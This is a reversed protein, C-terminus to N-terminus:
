PRVRSFPLRRLRAQLSSFAVDFLFVPASVFMRRWLRRPEQLLRPLWELGLRRFLPSSRKIRGSYFDFAAGVAGAFRVDLQGAHRHIWKEQKPATMAVWLVDAAAANVRRVMDADQEATFVPAFPPAHSGCVTIGPASRQLRETIAQLNAETSGLLFVRTPRLRGLRQNVLEFLDPGAIRGRLRASRGLLKSALVVGSGDPVLWHAARLATGFDRDRKATAYSHPNMCAMWAFGQGHAVHDAIAAACDDASGCFLRYGLMTAGATM